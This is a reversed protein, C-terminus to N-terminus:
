SLDLTRILSREFIWTDLATAVCGLLGAKDSLPSRSIPTDAQKFHAKKAYEQRLYQLYSDDINSIGGGLIIKQCGTIASAQALAKAMASCASQLDRISQETPDSCIQKVTKNDNKESLAWGSAITELCGINGCRCLGTPAISIHGFQSQAASINKPTVWASGIHEAWNVYFFNESTENAFWREGQVMAEVNHVLITPIHTNTEIAESLPTEEWNWLDNSVLIKKDESIIGNVAVVIGVIPSTAVRSMRLCSKIVSYCLEQAKPRQGTPFREFRLLNGEMDALGVSTNRSGMDVALVMLADKKLRISIPRRGNSTEKKGTEEVLGEQLLGDIIESTSPKNLKLIRAIDARSCEGQLSLVNLVRLRNYTRATAPQSFKM